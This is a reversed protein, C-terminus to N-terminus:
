PVAPVVTFDSNVGNALIRAMTGDITVAKLVTDERFILWTGDPSWQIQRIYGPASIISHQVTGDRSLYILDHTSPDHFVFGSDDPTWVPGTEVYPTKSSPCPLELVTDLVTTRGRIEEIYIGVPATFYTEICADLSFFAFHASDSAWQIPEGLEDSNGKIRFLSYNTTDILVPIVLEEPAQIWRSNPSWSIWESELAGNLIDKKVENIKAPEALDVIYLSNGDACCWASAPKSNSSQIAIKRGDPSWKEGWHYSSIGTYIETQHFGNIDDIYTTAINGIVGHFVIKTGDPSIRISSCDEASVYSSLQEPKGSAFPLLVIYCADRIVGSYFIRFNERSSLNADMTSTPLPTLTLTQQPTRTPPLLTTTSTPPLVTLSPTSVLTWVNEASEGQRIETASCATLLLLSFNFLFRYSKKM